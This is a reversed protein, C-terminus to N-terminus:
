YNGSTLPEPGEAGVTMAFDIKISVVSINNARRNRRQPERAVRVHNAHM